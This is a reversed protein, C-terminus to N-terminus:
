GSCLKVNVKKTIVICGARSNNNEDRHIAHMSKAEIPGDKDIDLIARKRRKTSVM